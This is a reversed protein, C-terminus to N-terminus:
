VGAAALKAQVVLRGAGDADLPPAFHFGQGYHCGMAQLERAQAEMEVGEAIVTIGLNRALRIITGIIMQHRDTANIEKVFSGDIKLQTIPFRALYSLSSYGIGFDDLCFGVNLSRLRRIANESVTSSEVFMRETLELNIRRSDIRVERLMEHLQDPFDPRLLSAPSLNINVALGSHFAGPGFWERAQRLASRIMWEDIAVILGTEEAMPMFEEAAVVGRVPHQWRVLTEFAVLKRTALLVIPQYYMLFEGRQVAARLDHELRFASVASSHMGGDFVVAQARGRAKARYMAADADRLMDGAELYGASSLAIGISAMPFVDQGALRFPQALDAALQAALKRADEGDRVDELLITFEDGGLRALTHQGSLSARLRRGVEQLLQDGTLHGLSDNVVKFRDLDLFLVAFNPHRDAQWRALRQALRDLFLTRNALGTLADHLADHLLQQEIAKRETIDTLVGSLRLPQGQDDFQAAGRCLVWRYGGSATRLRYEIDLRPLDGTANRDIAVRVREADDPHIQAFWQGSTWLSSSPPAEILSFFTESLYLRGTDFELEWLADSSARVARALRRPDEAITGGEPEPSDISALWSKPFM